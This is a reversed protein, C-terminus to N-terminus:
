PAGRDIRIRRERVSATRGAGLEITLGGQDGAAAALLAEIREASPAPSGIARRLVRRAIARGPPADWDLEGDSTRRRDLEVYAMADLLDDEDAALTAFGIVRAVAGPRIAEMLPLLEARVRNRLYAADENSPDLRYAIRAADVLSRIRDRREALLPRVIRGRRAPIGRLGTTGSGRMLNILVTEASDDATHGTAIWGDHGAVRELFRYRAV